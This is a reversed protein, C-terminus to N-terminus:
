RRKRQRVPPTTKAPMLREERGSTDARKELAAVSTPKTIAQGIENTWGKDTKYYKGGAPVTVVIRHGARPVIGAAVPPTTATAPTAAPPTTAAPQAAPAPASATQAAQAAQKRQVAPVNINQGQWGQVPQQVPAAPQAAQKRQTAPINYNVTPVPAAPSATTSASGFAPFKQVVPAAPASATTGAPRTTDKDDDGYLSVGPLQSSIFKNALAKGVGAAMTGLVEDVRPKKTIEYIQM